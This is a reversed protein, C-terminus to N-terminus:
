PTSPVKDELAAPELYWSFGERATRPRCSSRWGPRTSRQRAIGNYEYVLPIAPHLWITTRGSGIEVTRGGSQLVRGPAAQEFDRDPSAPARSGRVRDRLEARLDYSKGDRMTKAPPAFATRRTGVTDRACRLDTQPLRCTVLWETLDLAYGSEVSDRVSDFPANVPEPARGFMTQPSLHHPTTHVGPYQAVRNVFVPKDTVQVARDRSSFDCGGNGVGAPRRSRRITATSDSYGTSADRGRCATEGQKMGSASSNPSMSPIPECM